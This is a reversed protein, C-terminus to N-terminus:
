DQRYVREVEQRVFALFIPHRMMDKVREGWESDKARRNAGPLHPAGTDAFARVSIRYQLDGNAAKQPRFSSNRKPVTRSRKSAHGDVGEGDDEDDGGDDNGDDDEVDGADEEELGPLVIAEAQAQPGVQNEVPPMSPDQPPAGLSSSPPSPKWGAPLPDWETLPAPKYILYDHERLREKCDQRRQPDVIAPAVIHEFVASDFDDAASHPRRHTKPVPECIVAFHILCGNGVHNGPGDPFVNTFKEQFSVWDSSGQASSELLRPVLLFGTPLPLPM